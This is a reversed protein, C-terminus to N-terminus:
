LGGSCFLAGEGGPPLDGRAPRAALSEAGIREGERESQGVRGEPAARGEGVPDVGDSRARAHGVDGERERGAVGARRRAVGDPGRRDDWGEPDHRNAEIVDTHLIIRTRTQRARTVRGPRISIRPVLGPPISKGALVIM